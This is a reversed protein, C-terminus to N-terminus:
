QIRTHLKEKTLNEKMGKDREYIIENRKSWLELTTKWLVTILQRAWREGNHSMRNVGLMSYHNDMAQILRRGIRGRYMHEWGIENQEEVAEKWEPSVYKTDAEWNGELSSALGIELLNAVESNGYEQISKHLYQPIKEQIKQMEKHGCSLLHLNDEMLSKCLPCHPSKASGEMHQRKKTPLWGHVFKVIRTQDTIPMSQLVKRQANWDISDFVQQLWNYKDRYFQEIPIWGASQLIWKQSDRTIAVDSIQLQIQAINKVKAAPQHMMNRQQTAQEDATINLIASFKLNEWDTNEDQHSKVHTFNHPIARWVGYALKTIDEDSKLNRRPVPLQEEYSEIRQILSKNDIYIKWNKTATDIEFRHILNKIFLGVSVLGYGEARFSEALMPHVEVPGRGRAILQQNMAVVWGFTSIGSSPDYGGDSAIEFDNRGEPLTFETEDFLLAVNGVLHQLEASTEEYWKGSTTQGTSNQWRQPINATRIEEATVMLIDTLISELPTTEMHVSPERVFAMHKRRQEKRNHRNYSMNQQHLWLNGEKDVVAQHARDKNMKIWKGLPQRLRNTGNKFSRLFRKWANWAQQNPRKQKPWRLLSTSPREAIPKYWSKLIQTGASTVIDSLTEVQLYLRCRHIYLKERRTQHEVYPSDMLYQDHERYLEPMKTAQIIKGNIHHLFDRIQPIWGWELYELPPCDELIPKGIGAELQIVELLAIIMSQSMSKEQNLEQLLLRTSDSGQLDYLHRMGVGQNLSPAYVVERPMHRNYGRASLFAMTAKAQITEMDIQNIVTINLSYRLAPIYFVEYALKAEARTLANSNIKIAYQDSKTKLRQIEAQQDGIPCKMVGLLWQSEITKLQPIKEEHGHINRIMIERGHEEPTITYAYGDDDFDWFSIYSACKSLEMFHGTANLLGNWHRFAGEAENIMDEKSKKGDDNNGLLNTDDAFAALPIKAMIKGQRNSITTGDVLDQYLDFLMASEQSWQSPSDGAGQGNGYVPSIENSYWTESIGINTKLFYKSAKLTEAHM